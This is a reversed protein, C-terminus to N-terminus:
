LQEFVPRFVGIHAGVLHNEPPHMGHVFVKGFPTCIGFENQVYCKIAAHTGTDLTM